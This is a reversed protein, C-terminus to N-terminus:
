VLLLEMDRRYTLFGVSEYFKLAEENFEWVNLRIKEFGRGVADERMFDVLMTAIGRRRYQEAVGFEEIHYINGAHQFESEPKHIYQAIAFGVIEEGKAAIIVGSEDSSFRVNVLEEIANWGDNKFVDARGNCHLEHVKKRLNNVQELEEQKAFRITINEKEM